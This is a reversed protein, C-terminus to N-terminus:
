PRSQSRDLRRRVLRVLESMAFPKQLFEVGPALGSGAAEAFERSYGSMHIVPLDPCESRMLEGLQLGGIGGPMVMDTVVLDYVPGTRRWLEM